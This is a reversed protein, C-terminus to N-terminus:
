RICASRRPRWAPTARIRLVPAAAFPGGGSGAPAAAFSHHILFRGPGQELLRDLRTRRAFRATPASRQEPARQQQHEQEPESAPEDDQPQRLPRQADVAERMLDGLGHRAAEARSPPHGQAVAREFEVAFRRQRQPDAPEVDVVRFAGQHHASRERDDAEVGPAQQAERDLWARDLEAVDLHSGEDVVVAGDGERGRRRRSPLRGLGLGKRAHVGGAADDRRNRRRDGRDEADHEIRGADNAGEVPCPDGITAQGQHIVRPVLRAELPHVAQKAAARAVIRAYELQADVARVALPAEAPADVLGPLAPARAHDGQVVQGDGIQQQQGAARLHRHIGVELERGLGVHRQGAPADLRHLGLHLGAAAREEDVLLVEVRDDDVFQAGLRGPVLLPAGEGDRGDVVLAAAVVRVQGAGEGDPRGPGLIGPGQIEGSLIGQQAARGPAIGGEADALDGAPERPPGAAHVDLRDRDRAVTQVPAQAAGDACPGIVVADSQVDNGAVGVAPLRQPQPGLVDRGAHAVVEHVLQAASPEIPGVDLDVHAARFEGGGGTAVRHRILREVDGERDRVRIQGDRLVGRRQAM